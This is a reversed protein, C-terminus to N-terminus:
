RQLWGAVQSFEHIDLVAENDEVPGSYVAKMRGSGDVWLDAERGGGAFLSFLARGESPSITVSTPAPRLSKAIQGAVVHADDIVKVALEHALKKLQQAFDDNLRQEDDVDIRPARNFTVM